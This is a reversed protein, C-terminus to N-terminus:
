AICSISNYPKCIKDSGYSKGYFLSGQGNCESEHADHPEKLIEKESNMKYFEQFDFFNCKLLRPVM